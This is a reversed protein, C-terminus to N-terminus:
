GNAPETPSWADQQNLRSGAPRPVVGTLLPDGTEQMWEDLLTALEGHADHTRDGALLNVRELPDNLLDFLEEAPRGPDFYGAEAAVKKSPSDDVNAPLRASNGGYHRILRYRETRVTRAPDYVAHYNIESYAARRVSRTQGGLVPLLSHGRVESRVPAEALECLTPYLDLQSILAGEVRGDDAIGPIRLITAVRTGGDHLTCKMRPFAPGHDTTLLVATDDWTDCSRLAEVVRGIVEDAIRLSTLFGEMDERTEPMDPLPAPPEHHLRPPTEAQPAPFPRHTSFLGFSLFFPREHKECLFEAVLDANKRDWDWPNATWPDGPRARFYDEEEDLIRDYGIEHKDPAIHQVGCLATEFGAAGLVRALHHEYSRLRFGRHALGTMGNEHPYSGTLLASRSPSCTPAACFVNRFTAAERALSEIGPLAVPSNAPDLFRGSDHTHLYVINM